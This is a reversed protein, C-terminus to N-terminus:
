YKPNLILQGLSNPQFQNDPFATAFNGNTKIVGVRVGNVIDYIATSDQLVSIDWHTM